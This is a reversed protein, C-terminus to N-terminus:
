KAGPLTIAACNAQYTTDALSNTALYVKATDANTINPLAAVQACHWVCLAKLAINEKTM